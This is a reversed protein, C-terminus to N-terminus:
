WLKHRRRASILSRLILFVCSMLVIAIITGFVFPMLPMAQNTVHYAVFVVNPQPLLTAFPTGFAIPTPTSATVDKITLTSIIVLIGCFLGSTMAMKSLWEHSNEQKLEYYKMATDRGNVTGLKNKANRVHARVTHRSIILRSAIERYTLADEIWLVLCELERLTLCYVQGAVDALKVKNNVM